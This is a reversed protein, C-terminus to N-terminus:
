EVGHEVARRLLGVLDVAARVVQERSRRARSVRVIRRGNDVRADGAAAGIM